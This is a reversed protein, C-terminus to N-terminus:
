AEAGWHEKIRKLQAEDAWLECYGCACCVWRFLDAQRLGLADVPIRDYAGNVVAKCRIVESSGCKPCRRHNKM